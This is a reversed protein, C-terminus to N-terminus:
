RGSAACPAAPSAACPIRWFAETESPSTAIGLVERRGDTNVTVVVIVAKSVIRGTEGVKVYTAHLWLYPWDGELPRDLFSKVSM